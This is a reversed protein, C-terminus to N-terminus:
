EHSRKWQQIFLAYQYGVLYVKRNGDLTIANVGHAATQTPYTWLLTGTVLLRAVAEAQEQNSTERFSGDDPDVAIGEPERTSSRHCRPDSDEVQM